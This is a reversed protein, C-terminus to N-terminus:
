ETLIQSFGWYKMEIGVDLRRNSVMGQRHLGACICNKGESM